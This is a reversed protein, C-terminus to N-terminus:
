SQPQEQATKLEAVTVPRSVPFAAKLLERERAAVENLAQQLRAREADLQRLEDAYGEPVERLDNVKGRHPRHLGNGMVAEAEDWERAGDSGRLGTVRHPAIYRPRHNLRRLGALLREVYIPIM